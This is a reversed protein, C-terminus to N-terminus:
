WPGRVVIKMSKGCCPRNAVGGPIPRLCNACWLRDCYVCGAGDWGDPVPGAAILKRHLKVSACFRCGCPCESPESM